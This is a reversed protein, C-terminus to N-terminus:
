TDPETKSYGEAWELAKEKTGLEKKGAFYTRGVLTLIGTSLLNNLKDLRADFGRDFYFELDCTRMPTAMKNKKTLARVNMGIKNEGKVIWGIRALEIRLSAYFRLAKGGSTTKKDGYGMKNIDDRVQNIFILATDSNHVKGILKRMAKSMLRAQLGVQMEDMEAEMEDEPVMSSVSDLIILKVDNEIFKEILKLAEEGSMPQAHIVKELDVGAKLALEKTLSFEMDIFATRLGMKQAESLVKLALSTKGTSENGYLETIRKRPVGGFGTLTDLSPLGFPIVDIDELDSLKHLIDGDFDKSFNHIINDIEDM